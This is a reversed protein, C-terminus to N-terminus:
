QSADKQVAGTAIMADAVRWAQLVAEQVPFDALAQALAHGAYWQRLSMGPQVAHYEKGGTVKMEERPFAAGGDDRANM